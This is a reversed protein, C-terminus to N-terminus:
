SPETFRNYLARLNQDLSLACSAVEASTLARVDLNKRARLEKERNLVKAFVMSLNRVAIGSPKGALQADNNIMNWHVASRIESEVFPYVDLQPDNGWSLSGDRCRFERIRCKVFEVAEAESVYGLGLEPNDLAKLESKEWFQSKDKAILFAIVIRNRQLNRLKRNLYEDDADLEDFIATAFNGVTVNSIQALTADIRKRTTDLDEALDDISEIDVTTWTNASPLRYEKTRAALYCGLTSKGSGWPGRIIFTLSQGGGSPQDRSYGADRML